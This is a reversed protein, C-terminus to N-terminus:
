LRRRTRRGPARRDLIPVFGPDAEWRAYPWVALLAEALALVTPANPKDAGCLLLETVQQPLPSVNLYGYAVEVGEPTRFLQPEDATPAPALQHTQAVRLFEALALAPAFHLSILGFLSLPDDEPEVPLAPHLPPVARGRTRRPPSPM